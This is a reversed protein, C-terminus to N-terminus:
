GAFFFVTLKVNRGQYHRGLRALLVLTGHVVLDLEELALDCFSQHGYAPDVRM